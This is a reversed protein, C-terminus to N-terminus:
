LPSCLDSCFISCFFRVNLSFSVFNYNCVFSYMTVQWFFDFTKLIFFECTKLWSFRCILRTHNWYRGSPQLLTVLSVSFDSLPLAQVTTGCCVCLYKRALKAIEGLLVSKGWAFSAHRWTMSPEDTEDQRFGFYQWVSSTSVASVKKSRLEVKANTAAM